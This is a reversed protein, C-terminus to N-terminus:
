APAGDGFNDRAQGILAIFVDELNADARQWRLGPADRWPAIADLYRALYRPVDENSAFRLRRPDVGLSEARKLVRRVAVPGITRMWLVSAPVARLIAMWADFREPLIKYPASMAAYVGPDAHAIGGLTEDSPVVGFGFTDAVANREWVTIEHDPNLQKTLAAFYLGGPGGGIVAIRM